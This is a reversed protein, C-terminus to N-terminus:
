KRVEYLRYVYLRINRRLRHDEMDFSRLAPPGDVAQAPEPQGAANM